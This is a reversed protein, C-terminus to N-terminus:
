EFHIQYKKEKLKKAIEPFNELEPDNEIITKAEERAFEVMKINKLAEMALDSIGWQKTGALDGAGRQALDLEALEFGNKASVFAKLRDKTKKTKSDAFLYCFAQHESRMVRGRLQHLQALGFREAGEIIISTANPVNVGVEVVSTSVLIDIEGRYFSQMIKEKEEKKMKSHMTAIKADPFINKKLRKAESIVSKVQLAQKKEPDPDDIRPCIVYAQRGEKLREHIAEYIKERSKEDPPVIETKVAKRGKPMGELVSIDLDGYLTLALTRPIPTATMSLYHPMREDKQSLQMRQRTGFRHQEDIIVLALNKFKIKKQILAHTGIVIPIEGNAIWKLVQTKSIKTWQKKDVKSPFKKAGSGTILAISIGTGEFYQIFNEFLQSALVETPAMYAVQLRGFNNAIANKQVKNQIVAHSSVAAVFTKGSGVDGELLRTMAKDGNMDQLISEIANKQGQTPTFPFREIFAKEKKKDRQIRYSFNKQYRLKQQQNQIQIFFIEEFAFRKRAAEAKKEHNPFHIWVLATQIQPLKYKELLYYPLTEEIQAFAESQMIKLIKHYIWQSRIGRSERYVPYAFFNHTKKDNQFLSPHRDIPFDKIKEIEPNILTKEGNKESIKGILRVKQGEHFTKAIFAQHFWLIKIKDGHIDKLIAESMPINSRYTKKVKIKQIEGLISAREGDRTERINKVSSINGYRSPFFFLLDRLTELGLRKLAKKQGESTRFTKTIKQDLSQIEM